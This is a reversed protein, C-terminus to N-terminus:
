TLSDRRCFEADIPNVLHITGRATEGAVNMLTVKQSRATGPRLLNVVQSENLCRCAQLAGANRGRTDQLCSSEIRRRDNKL